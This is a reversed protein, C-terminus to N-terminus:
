VVGSGLLFVGDQAHSVLELGPEVVSERVKTSFLVAKGDRFCPSSRGQKEEERTVKESYSSLFNGLKESDQKERTYFPVLVWVM